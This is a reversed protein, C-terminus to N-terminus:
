LSRTEEGNVTAGYEPLKVGHCVFAKLPERRTTDLVMALSKRTEVFRLACGFARLLFEHDQPFLAVLDLLNRIPMTIVAIERLVLIRFTPSIEPGSVVAFCRFIFCGCAVPSAFM